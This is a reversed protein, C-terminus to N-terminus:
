ASEAVPVSQLALKRHALLVRLLHLRRGLQDLVRRNGFVNIPDPLVQHAVRIREDWEGDLDNIRVVDIGECKGSAKEIHIGAENEGSIILGFKRADHRMLDRVDGGAM